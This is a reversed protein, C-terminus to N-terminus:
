VPLGQQIELILQRTAQMPDEVTCVSSIVAIGHAGCQMVDQVTELTIGGIAIVPCSAIQCFRALESLGKPKEADSKSSTRFVPGFGIYDAGASIAEMIKDKTRASAGIIAQSPLIRRAVGIPLDEQGFHAGSAEVALAIDARDNIILPVRRQDCIAKLHFATEVLLRTSTSKQRFQITDAGGAIALKALQSHTFRSQITTDTIVHLRGISKASTTM